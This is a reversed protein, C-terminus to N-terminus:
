GNFNEDVKVWGKQEEEALGSMFMAKGCFVLDEWKMRVYILGMEKGVSTVYGQVGWSKVEDAVLLCMRFMENSATPKVQFIDGTEYQTQEGTM